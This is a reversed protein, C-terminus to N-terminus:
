RQESPRSPRPPKDTGAGGQDGGAVGKGEGETPFPKPRQPQGESAQGPKPGSERHEDTM